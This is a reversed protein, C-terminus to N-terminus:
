WTIYVDDCKNWSFIYIWSFLKNPLKKEAVPTTPTQRNSHFKRPSGFSLVRHMKRERFFTWRESLEVSKPCFICKCWEVVSAHMVAQFAILSLSLLLYTYVLASLGVYIRM